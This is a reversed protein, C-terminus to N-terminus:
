LAVTGDTCKVESAPVHYNWAGKKEIANWEAATGEFIIESLQECYGFAGDAISTISNPITVKKLYYCGEFAYEGLATISQEYIGMDYYCKPIILHGAFESSYQSNAYITGDNQYIIKGERLLDDFSKVLGAVAETQAGGGAALGAAYGEDYASQIKGQADDACKKYGSDYGKDYVVSIGGPMESTTYRSNEESLERIKDAIARINEEEYVKKAM